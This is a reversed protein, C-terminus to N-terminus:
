AGVWGNELMQSPAEVFDVLVNTGAPPAIPAPPASEACTPAKPTLTYPTGPGRRDATPAARCTVRPPRAGLFFPRLAAGGARGRGGQAHQALLAFAAGAFSAIITRGLIQHFMHGMEHFLTVQATTPKPPKSATPETPHSPARSLAGGELPALGQPLPKLGLPIGASDSGWRVAQVGLLCGFTGLRVGLGRVVDDHPLLSPQSPTSAPFNCM